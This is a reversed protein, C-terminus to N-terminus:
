TWYVKSTLSKKENSEWKKKPLWSVMYRKEEFVRNKTKKEPGSKKDIGVPSPNNSTFNRQFEARTVNRLTLQNTTEFVKKVGVQPFIGLKVLIEWLPQFWWGTLRQMIPSIEQPDGHPVCQLSRQHWRLLNSPTPAQLQSKKASISHDSGRSM